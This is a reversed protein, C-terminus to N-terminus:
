GASSVKIDTDALKDKLLCEGTPSRCINGACVVLISKFMGM